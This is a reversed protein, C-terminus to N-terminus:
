SVKYFIEEISSISTMKKILFAEPRGNTPFQESQFHCFHWWFIIRHVFLSLSLFLLCFLFNRISCFLQVVLYIDFLFTVLIVLIIRISVVSRLTQRGQSKLIYAFQMFNRCFKREPNKKWLMWNSKNTWKRMWQVSSGRLHCQEYFKLWCFEFQFFSFFHSETSHTKIYKM